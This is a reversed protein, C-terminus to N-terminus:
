GIDLNIKLKGMLGFDEWNNINISFLLDTITRKVNNYYQFTKYFNYM